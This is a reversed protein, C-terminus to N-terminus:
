GELIGVMIQLLETLDAPVRYLNTDQIVRKEQTDLVAFQWINGMSVARYLMSYNAFEAKEVAILEVALQIFCRQLDANKAEIVLFQTKTQLFYDLEGKLHESVKLSYGVKIKVQTYHILEMLVPAILFERRAMESTFSVYPLIKQLRQKLSELQELQRHTQPLNLPRSEHGYGFYSLIEDPESNLKFYDAFTYSHTPNIIPIISM